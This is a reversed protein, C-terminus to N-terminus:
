RSGINSLTTITKCLEFPKLSFTVDDTTLNWFTRDPYASCLDADNTGGKSRAWLIKESGLDAWNHVLEDGPYHHAMDYSVVVLQKGSENELQQAVLRRTDPFNFVTNLASSATQRTITVVLVTACVAVVFAQEGKAQQDWLHRLGEICFIYIAITAPSFYHVQTFVCLGVAIGTTITVALVIWLRRRKACLLLGLLVPFTLAPGVYFLWNHGLRRVEWGILGSFSSTQALGHEEAEAVYYKAFVPDRAPAQIKVRQGLFLPLSSYTRENLVYPMLLPNGTTRQNYYGMLVAGGIGIIMVPLVTSRLKIEQHLRGTTVHYVFYALLPLSFAFGEFPRSTALLLLSFAFVSALVVRNQETRSPAFLRVAAGVALAGGLAPVSGGWYSNMWYSFLAIRFVALLGGLLAWGQPVFAQLAWCIAGCLAATSLYVGVWPQRFITQGFALVLGQAVPYKSHYTPTLNVHFTEFHRWAPPTPNALRFHSFTDGMLLYSYEDNIRPQPIGTWPMVLARGVLAVGIVLVVGRWNRSLIADLWRPRPMFKGVFVFLLLALVTCAVLVSTEVALLRIGDVPVYNM